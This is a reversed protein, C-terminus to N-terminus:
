KPPAAGLWGRYVLYGAGPALQQAVVAYGNASGLIQFANKIRYLQTLDTGHGLVQYTRTSDTLSRSAQLWIAGDADMFVADFPAKVPAFPLQSAMPQQDEPFTEIFYDKDFRTVPYIADPLTPGARWAGTTDRWDVRNKGVRAVWLVGAPTVGWIDNGSYVQRVLRRGEASTIMELSYPSLRAITDVAGSGPAWRLVLGSDGQSPRAEAYLRGRGDRGRPIWGALSAPLPTAGLLQGGASWATVRRMGWDAVFLTDGVTFPESPHVYDKGPRGLLQASHRKWDLIRVLNGFQSTVAWRDNGLWAARSLDLDTLKLTDSFTTLTHTPPPPAAPGGCAAALLVIPLLRRM